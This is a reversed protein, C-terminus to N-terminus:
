EGVWARVCGGEDEVVVVVVVVGQGCKEQEGEWVKLLTIQGVPDKLGTTDKHGDWGRVGVGLGVAEPGIPQWAQGGDWGRVGVGLGVAEPGM